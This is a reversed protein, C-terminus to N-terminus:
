AENLKNQNMLCNGMEFVPLYDSKMLEAARRFSMEAQQYQKAGKLEMGKNFARTFEIPKNDESVYGFATKRLNDLSKTMEEKCEKIKAEVINKNTFISDGKFLCTLETGAKIDGM